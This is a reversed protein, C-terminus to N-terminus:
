RSRPKTFQRTALDFLVLGVVVVSQTVTPAHQAAMGVGVLVGALATGARTLIPEVLEKLLFNM